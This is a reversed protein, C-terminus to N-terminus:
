EGTVKESRPAEMEHRWWVITEELGRHLDREPSWGVERRLRTVDAVLRPPEGAPAPRAGLEILERRNLRDAIKLIVDKLAVGDGSAINVAGEVDSALLAVFAAGVDAVHLFDRIQDGHSCPAPSGQLLSRIVSAVLRQPHEHAGYAFFIRGWAASLNKQRAFAELMVRLAHKSAGYLTAPALPTSSESCLGDGTWDYEACTGACVIRQGGHEAFAEFLDLSARVWRFNELSTWYAGPVAYWAMHLLHTPEVESMLRRMQVGDMLDATHWRVDATADEPPARRTSVVHVEWENAALLPAICQRGIFGTAGTLLVRKM